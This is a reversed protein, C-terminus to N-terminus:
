KDCPCDPHHIMSLADTWLTAVVWKHGDHERTVIVTGHESTESPEACSIALTLALLLIIIKM